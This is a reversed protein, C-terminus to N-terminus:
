RISVPWSLAMREMAGSSSIRIPMPGMSSARCRIGKRLRTRDQPLARRRRSSSSSTTRPWLPNVRPRMRIARHCFSTAVSSSLRARYRNRRPRRQPIADGDRDAHPALAQEGGGIHEAGGYAYEERFYSTRSALTALDAGPGRAGGTRLFNQVSDQRPSLGRGIDLDIAGLDRTPPTLSFARGAFAVLGIFLLGAGIFGLGGLDTTVVACGAAVMFCGSGGGVDLVRSVGGFDYQWVHDLIQAKSLVRNPNLMLYRLLKFETPSLDIEREGRFVEHADDDLVLDRRPHGRDGPLRDVPEDSLPHAAVLRDVRDGADQHRVERADLVAEVWRCRPALEVHETRSHSARRTALGVVISLDHRRGHTRHKRRAGPDSGGEGKSIGEGKSPGVWRRMVANALKAAGPNVTKRVLEVTENAAAHAPIRDLFVLQYAGLRLAELLELELGHTGRRAFQDIIADLARRWTLTGYVLETALGRDADSLKAEELAASLAIHSYAGDRDIRLLVDLATKRPM